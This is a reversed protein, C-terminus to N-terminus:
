SYISKEFLRLLELAAKIPLKQGETVASEVSSLEQQIQPNQYFREELTQKIFDHMWALNQQKRNNFFYGNQQLLERHALITKWIDDIGSQTVASCTLVKPYWGSGSAPFLHLANEYSVKAQRAQLENGSDAKTIAVLDAMEMIGKKIGQLEDGAGALMLLLFFDVMGHVFTESQGVGVTEIIIVEFGAAECLLMTERTKHTVGGLSIGAPSPRIYALPDRSLEEMRTKDGLISGKSIQSSPDIALVAIKERSQDFTKWFNRHLYKQRRWTSGYHRTPSLQRHPLLTELVERALAKDTDLQSEILTIARSLIMRNGELVGAVYEDKSLRKRMQNKYPTKNQKKNTFLPM